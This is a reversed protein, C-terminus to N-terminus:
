SLRTYKWCPVGSLSREVIRLSFAQEYTQNFSLRVTFLRITASSYAASILVPIAM